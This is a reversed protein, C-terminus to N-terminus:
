LLNDFSAGFNSRGARWKGIHFAVPIKIEGVGDEGSAGFEVDLPSHM